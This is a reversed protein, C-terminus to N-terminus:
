FDKFTSIRWIMYAGITESIFAYLLLARGVDSKFMQDFFTKNTTTVVTAFAIPLLTMVVGQIKGQITLNDINQKIKKNERITGVIRSFIVPLNGGTERALLIATIMQHLAVSPVREYLHAFADELAVGMKNEGLLINFEQNLPEPREETVVELAQILSLGGKLSSSLIMLADILQDEFKSKRKETYTKVFVSPGLFGVTVGLVVGILRLGVPCFLFGAVGLVVPGLTFLLTMRNVKVRVFVKDMKDTLAQSRKQNVEIVKTVVPSLLLNCLLTVSGFTFVMIVIWM